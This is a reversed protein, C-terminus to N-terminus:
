PGRCEQEKTVADAQLDPRVDPANAQAYRHYLDAAEARRGLGRYAEALGYLASARGPDLKLAYEYDAAAGELRGVGVQASGRAIYADVFGPWIDIAENLARLAERYRHQAIYRVGNEYRLRAQVPSMVPPPSELDLNAIQGSYVEPPGVVVVQILRPDFYRHVVSEIQEPTLVAAERAMREFRDAPQRQWFLTAATEAREHLTAYWEFSSRAFDARGIPIVERWAIRGQMRQATWIAQRLAEGTADARVSASSIVLGAELAMTAGADVDYTWATDERFQKTLVGGYIRSALLLPVEDASGAPAGARGLVIVSQSLGARPVFVVRSRLRAPPVSPVDPVLARGGWAGLRRQVLALAQTAPLSGALVIATTNPAVHDRFFDRLDEVRASEVFIRTGEVLRGYPHAPGYVERALRREAVGRPDLGEISLDHLAEDRAAELVDPDIVPHTLHEALLGLAEEARDSLVTGGALAGDPTVSLSPHAGLSMLRAALGHPDKGHGSFWTHFALNALGEKGSPDAVSGAQFAVNVSELPLSPEESVMVTLGNSLTWAQLSAPYWAPDPRSRPPTSRWADKPTACACVLTLALLRKM